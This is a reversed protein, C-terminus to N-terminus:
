LERLKEMGRLTSPAAPQTLLAMHSPSFHSTERHSSLVMTQFSQTLFGPSAFVIKMQRIVEGSTESTLCAIEIFRSFYDVILLYNSGKWYFLDTGVTEWPLKPFESPKLPPTPPQREKCCELCSLIIDELQRNIGPWWVSQRARERCKTIGQHGVHIQDLIERRMPAPIVIRNGRM